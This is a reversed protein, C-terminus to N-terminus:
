TQRFSVINLVHDSEHYPKHVKLLHLTDDIAKALGSQRALLLMAGIGGCGLGRAREAVEYHINSASFMPSDQPPWSKPALRREIRRKRNKLAKIIQPNM